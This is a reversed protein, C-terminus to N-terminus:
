APFISARRVISILALSEGIEADLLYSKNSALQVEARKAGKSIDDAMLM